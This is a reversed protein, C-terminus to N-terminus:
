KATTKSSRGLISMTFWRKLNDLDPPEFGALIEFESRAAEINGLQIECQVLWKRVPVL